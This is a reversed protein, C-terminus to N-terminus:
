EDVELFMECYVINDGAVRQIPVIGTVRYPANRTPMDYEVTGYSCSDFTVILTGGDSREVPQVDIPTDFLGGSTLDIPIIVQNGAVTGAGTMWRHGPDGLNVDAGELPLDTDYTFWAVSASGLDPFVTFFFGQGSTAPEYWADNLGPNMETLPVVHDPGELITGSTVVGEMWVIHGGDDDHPRLQIGLIPPYEPGYSQISMSFNWSENAIGVFGAIGTNTMAFNWNGDDDLYSINAEPSTEVFSEFDSLDVTKKGDETFVTFSFDTTKICDAYDNCSEYTVVGCFTDGVAFPIDEPLVPTFKHPTFDGCFTRTEAVAVSTMAVCMFLVVLLYTVRNIITSM